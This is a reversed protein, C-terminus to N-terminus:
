TVGDASTFYVREGDSAPRNFIRKGQTHTWLLGGDAARYARLEGRDTGVIVRDKVLLPDHPENAAFEDKRAWRIFPTTTDKVPKEGPLPAPVGTGGALAWLGALILARLVRQALKM